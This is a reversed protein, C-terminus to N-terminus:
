MWGFKFIVPEVPIKSGILLQLFFEAGTLNALCSLALKERRAAPEGETVIQAKARTIRQDFKCVQTEVSRLLKNRGASNPTLLQSFTQRLGLEPAIRLTGSKTNMLDAVHDRFSDALAKDPHWEPVGVEGIIQKKETLRLTM